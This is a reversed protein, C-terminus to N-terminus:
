VESLIKELPGQRSQTELSKGHHIGWEQNVLKEIITIMPLGTEVYLERLQQATEARIKMTKYEKM